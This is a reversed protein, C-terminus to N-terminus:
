APDERQWHLLSLPSAPDAHHEFVGRVAAGISVTQMPDGLLNGLMRVGGAHPLEVLVVLYPGHGQLAPHSPHWVREWSYIRGAPEVDQWDPDFALCQHCLWEPGFQWTGCHRCHQVRLRAERLGQWYPLSLADPAPMPLGTPLYTTAPAPAPTRAKDQPDHLPTM